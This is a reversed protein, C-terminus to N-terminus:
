LPKNREIIPPVWQIEDTDTDLVLRAYRHNEFTLGYTMTRGNEWEYGKHMHGHFHFRPQIGELINDIVRRNAASREDPILRFGWPTSDSADHSIFYDVQDVGKARLNGYMRIGDAYTIMEEEFYDLGLTRWERDISVAGGMGVFWKGGWEWVSGRPIYFLDLFVEIHGDRNKPREKLWRGILNFNEHNGDIFYVPIGHMSALTSVRYSFACHKDGLPDGDINFAVGYDGVQVIRECGERKALLISEEAAYVNGHWDGAVLIKM